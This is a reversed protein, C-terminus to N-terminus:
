EEGYRRVTAGGTRRVLPLNILRGGGQPAPEASRPPPRCGRRELLTLNGELPAENERRPGAAGKAFRNWPEGIAKRRGLGLWGPGSSLDVARFFSGVEGVCAPLELM